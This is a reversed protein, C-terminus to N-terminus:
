RLLPLGQPVLKGTAGDLNDFGFVGLAGTTTLALPTIANVMTASVAVDVIAGIPASINVMNTAAASTNTWMSAFANAPPRSMFFATGATGVTNNLTVQDSAHEEVTYWSIETQPAAGTSATPNAPTWIKIHRIKFSSYVAVKTTANVTVVAGLAGAMLGATIVDGVVGGSLFRFTHNILV